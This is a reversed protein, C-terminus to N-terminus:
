GTVLPTEDTSPDGASGQTYDEVVFNWVEDQDADAKDRDMPAVRQVWCKSGRSSRHSDSADTLGCPFPNNAESLNELFASHVNVSPFTLHYYGITTPDLGVYPQGDATSFAHVRDNERGGELKKWGTMHRGNVVFTCLRPDYQM